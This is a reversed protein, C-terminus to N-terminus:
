VNSFQSAPEHIPCRQDTHDVTDPDTGPFGTCMPSVQGRHTRGVIWTYTGPDTETTYAQLIHSPRIDVPDGVTPSVRIQYNHVTLVGTYQAIAGDTGLVRVVCKKGELLNADLQHGGIIDFLRAYRGAYRAYGLATPYSKGIIGRIQNEAELLTAARGLELHQHTGPALGHRNDIQWGFGAGDAIVTVLFDPTEWKWLQGAESGYNTHEWPIPDPQTLTM